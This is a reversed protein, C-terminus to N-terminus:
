SGPDFTLTAGIDDLGQAIMLVRDLGLAVGACDPLGTRLAHILADDADPVHLNRNRRRDRDAEFRARQEDADTLEVFGNALELPGLFVEFRDALVPDDPCLRALAAQDAPYHYIATLRDAPLGPAVRTSMLLDLWAARDTGLSSRLSDDADVLDSIETVSATLPDIGTTTLFADRYSSRGADALALGDLMSDLLQLADAIIAQLSFGRRYWEVMTFEPRHRSGSEGDRFVKCVQYIDPYGSALLRKM